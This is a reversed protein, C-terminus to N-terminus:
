DDARRRITEALARFAAEVGEGTRASTFLTDSVRDDPLQIAAPGGDILDIKNVIARYPRGPFKAEFDDVLDFMRAITQPRSADAVIVAASAGSVYITDLIQRGFDGDTDWLVLRAADGSGPPGIQIDCSLVQVGITTKYNGDFRDFILRQLLSTKGAGMDGLLMVKAALM